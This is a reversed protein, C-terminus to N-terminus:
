ELGHQSGGLEEMTIKGWTKDYRYFWTPELLILQNEEADRELSYGLTLEELLELKFNKKTQLFELIAHGSPRTVNHMETTIPLELAINPRVYMNIDDRGWIENIESLGRDNYVPYGDM